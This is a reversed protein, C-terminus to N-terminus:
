PRSPRTTARDPPGCPCTRRGRRRQVHRVPRPSRRGTQPPSSTGCRVSRSRSSCSSARAALRERRAILMGAGTVDITPITEADLVVAVTESTVLALVTDRVHDANAFFLGSEVRLVVVDRDLPADPVRDHDM